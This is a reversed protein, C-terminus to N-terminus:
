EHDEAKRPDTESRRQAPKAPSQPKESEDRMVKGSSDFRAEGHEITRSLYMVVGALAVFSLLFITAFLVPEPM